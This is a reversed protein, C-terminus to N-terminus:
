LGGTGIWYFFKQDDLAMFFIMNDCKMDSVSISCFILTRTGDSGLFHKDASTMGACEPKQHLTCAGAKKENGESGDM